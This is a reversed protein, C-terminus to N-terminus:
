QPVVITMLMASLIVLASMRLMVDFYTLCAMVATFYICLMGALVM